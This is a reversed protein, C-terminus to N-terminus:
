RRVKKRLEARLWHLAQPIMLIWGCAFLKDAIVPPMQGANTYMEDIGAAQFLCIFGIVFMARRVFKITGKM